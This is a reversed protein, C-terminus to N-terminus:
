ARAPPSRTTGTSTRARRRARPPHALAAVNRAYLQSAHSPWRARCTSRASSRSATRGGRDRRAADARLQRGDRRRSRRDGLRPADARGGVGPDAAAGAPGPDRRDHDRRRVRPDARRAGGAPAAQEEPTLERAYGGETEEGSSASTSSRRASRSCRSGCSRGCTSASCSPASGGRPRSRRSGPSAPASCSCRRRRRDDRRRDDADPLVEAAARRRALAGKYGSVTAQSSLADMAQARTIRPISEMAFAVVGRAALREIAPRTASRSRPVRDAAARRPAEAEEAESPKAVKVVCDTREVRRRRARRGGGRVRRRRLGAATGAGREVAVTIGDLRSIVDPVLAVRNEGPATERPVGVRMRAVSDCVASAPASPGAARASRARASGQPSIPVFDACAPAAPGSVTARPPQM